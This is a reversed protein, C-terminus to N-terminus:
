ESSIERRWAQADDLVRQLKKEVVAEEERACRAIFGELNKRKAHIRAWIAQQRELRVRTQEVLRQQHEIAVGLRAIFEHYVQLGRATSARQVQQRLEEHYGSLYDRLERLKDEAAKMQQLAQGLRTAENEEERLVLDLVLQLRRSRKM